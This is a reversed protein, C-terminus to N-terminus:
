GFNKILKLYSVGAEEEVKGWDIKDVAAYRQYNRPYLMSRCAGRCPVHAAAHLGVLRIKRKYDPSGARASPRPVLLKCYQGMWFVREAM